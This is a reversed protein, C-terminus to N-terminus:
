RPLAFTVIADGGIGTRWPFLDVAIAIMQRGDVVYSIPPADSYASALQTFPERFIGRKVSTLWERARTTWPLAPVVGFGDDEGFQYRWVQKGSSADFAYFTGLPAAAFVLNGATLVGGMIRGGSTLQQRWALRGSDVAVASLYNDTLYDSPQVVPREVLAFAQRTVPDYSAPGIAGELDPTGYPDHRPVLPESVRILNGNIRNLVYFWGTKGAEGVAPVLKGSADRADFLMPPSAVDDDWVDHPTEQYNWRMKGTAADLAVISDTYLNDGPRSESDLNPNGTGLYIIGLKQDLAPTMWVPGGGRMWSTRHRPAEAKERAINRHLSVGHVSATYRGEWGPGVSWWRWLRAGDSARYATFSGRIGYEHSSGGIFVMGRWALPAMSETFGVHPDGVQVQWIKAGSRADLAFLRGDMTAFFIRGNEAAVGRNVIGYYPRFYGLTPRFTWKRAGTRVDLAAVTQSTGSMSGTTVYMTDGIVLPSTEDRGHLEELYIWVPRLLRVNDASIQSSGVRRSNALDFGYTPWGQQAAPEALAGTVRQGLAATDFAVPAVLAVFVAIITMGVSRVFLAARM